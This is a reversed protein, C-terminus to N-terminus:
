WKSSSSGSGANGSVVEAVRGANSSSSGGVNGSVVAVM